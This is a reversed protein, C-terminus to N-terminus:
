YLIYPFQYSSKQVDTSNFVYLFIGAFHVKKKCVELNMLMKFIRPTESSRGASVIFHVFLNLIM